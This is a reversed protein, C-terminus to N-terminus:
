IIKREHNITKFQNIRGFWTTLRRGVEFTKELQWRQKTGTKNPETWYSIFKTIETRVPQEPYGTNILTQITPEPNNFFDQAIQSPTNISEELRVKGLRDKGLRDQPAMQNDTPQWKTDLETYAKNEKVLLLKKEEQFRTPKYRDHRILNHILWHKIVVVGSEFILLFRKGILVRLDDENAGITRMILKPQVFGDDDAWMGLQFYLERSTTPMDLFEESGVIDLSFMRRQAM